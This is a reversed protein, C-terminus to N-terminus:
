RDSTSFESGHPSEAPGILVIGLPRGDFWVIRRARCSGITGHRSALRELWRFNGAISLGEYADDFNM